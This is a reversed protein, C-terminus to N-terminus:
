FYLGIILLGPWRLRRRRQSWAAAAGMGAVQRGYKRQIRRKNYLTVTWDIIYFGLIFSCPFLLLPLEFMLM